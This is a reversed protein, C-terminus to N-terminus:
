QQTALKHAADALYPTSISKWTVPGVPPTKLEQALGPMLHVTKGGVVTMLVHVNPIDQDPITLFDRDLVVFDAWKGPELSGIQNERLLYYAGWTTMAKLQVVRDTREEPCYVKKDRTNFRTMGDYVRQFILWPVPKDVEFGVKVGADFLSKRPVVWCTYKEGYARSYGYTGTIEGKELLYWNQGSLVMGLKKVRPIQDPRPSGDLHDFTQRKSRIDDLTFGAKQSEEEIADMLYGMDKDGDTHMTAIRGGTRIIRNVVERGVTGPAFNCREKKKVEPPADITTCAAGQIGWAGVNWLHDSGKGLLGAITRLTRESYDPGHYGWGMREAMEDRSDLYAFAQFTVPDYPASAFATMGYAAWLELSDKLLKAEAQYNGKMIVEPFMGRTVIGIPNEKFREIGGPWMGLPIGGSPSFDALGPTVKEIEEIAKGNMVALPSGSRVLVPNNPAVNDLGAKTIPARPGTFFEDTDEGWALNASRNFELIVWQGPKAKGVMERLTSWFNKYAEEAPAPQMWHILWQDNEMPLSNEWATQDEFMWDNPHEHTMILGPLIMRGRMDLQKTQPGALARMDANSGVALIRGDRIAMAQATKGLNENVGPDDITVIKADYVIFQPFGLTLAINPRNQAGAAAALLLMPLILRTVSRNM